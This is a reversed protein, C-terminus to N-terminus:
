RRRHKTPRISGDHLLMGSLIAICFIAVLFSEFAIGAFISVVAIGFIYISNLKQRASM